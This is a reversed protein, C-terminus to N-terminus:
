EGGTRGNIWDQMLPILAGVAEASFIIEQRMYTNDCIQLGQLCLTDNPMPIAIVWVGDKIKIYQSM